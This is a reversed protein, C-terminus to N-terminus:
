QARARPRLGLEGAIAYYEQDWGLAIMRERVSRAGRSGCDKSSCSESVRYAPPGKIGPVVDAPMGANEPLPMEVVGARALREVRELNERELMEFTPANWRTARATRRKYRM